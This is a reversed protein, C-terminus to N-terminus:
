RARRTCHQQNVPGLQKGRKLQARFENKGPQLLPPQKSVRRFAGELAEIVKTELPKGPVEKLSVTRMRGGMLEIRLVMNIKSESM